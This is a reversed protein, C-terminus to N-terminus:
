GAAAACGTTGVDLSVPSCHAKGNLAIPRPPDFDFTQPKWEPICGLRPPREVFLAPKFGFSTSGERGKEPFWGCSLCNCEFFAFMYFQLFVNKACQFLYYYLILLIEIIIVIIIYKMQQTSLIPPVSPTIAM